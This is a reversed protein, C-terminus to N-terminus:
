SITYPPPSSQSTHNEIRWQAQNGEKWSFEKAGFNVELETEGQVGIAAFVDYLGDESKAIYNSISSPYVGSYADPQIRTGNYTFFVGRSAFDIGCGFTDTAKPRVGKSPFHYRNTEDIDEGGEDNAHFTRYDDLHLGVSLRNWGPFRWGPYPKCATGPLVILLIAFSLVSAGVL